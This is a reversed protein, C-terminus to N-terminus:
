GTGRRRIAREYAELTQEAVLDPDCRTAILRAGAEGMQQRRRPSMALLDLIADAWGNVDDVPVLRGTVGEEVIEELAPIRSAVVPRGVACAEAAVYGMSEWRSPVACIAARALERAVAEPGGRRGPMEIAEAVGLSRALAMLHSGYPRGDPGDAEAGLFLFRTEPRHALIRSAAKILTDPGKRPELRGAFLVRPPGEAPAAPQRRPVPYIIPRLREPPLGLEDAVSSLIAPTGTVVDARRILARECRVSLRADLGMGGLYPLIQAAGSHLRVVLPLRNRLAIGLGEACWEPSEFVDFRVGLRAQELFVGAALSIRAWTQPLRLLRGVGPPRLLPRRHVHVGDLTRDSREQGRLVSLVHVEVGQRSLARSITGAYTGIGGWDTEPPFEQSVLLLKV